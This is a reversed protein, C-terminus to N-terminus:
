EGRDEFTGWIRLVIIVDDRPIYRVICNGFVLDRLGLSDPASLVPHGREPFDRLKEIREALEAGIRAAASPDKEAILERLRVLDEIAALAYVLKM